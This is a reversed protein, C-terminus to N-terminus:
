LRQFLSGDFSPEKKRTLWAAKLAEFSDELIREKRSKNIIFKRDFNIYIHKTRFDANIGSMVYDTM